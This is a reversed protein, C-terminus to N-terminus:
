RMLNSLGIMAPNDHQILYVPIPKLYEKFRGKQEFRIRFRDTNFTSGLKKVIGGALYVGGLAGVTLALDGSTSALFDTFMDITACAAPDESLAKHAIEESTLASYEFGDVHCVSEYLLPLGIGSVLREASIHGKKERAFGIVAAERDNSAALTVHGGEGPVPVWRDGACVLSAVGLGTGPGIVAKVSTPNPVSGGIKVLDSDCIYPLSLAIAQFDNIVDLRTWGFSQRVETQSFRWHSNTLKVLDGMVPEAVCIAAESVDPQGMEKLYSTIAESLSEFSICKYTTPAVCHGNDSKLVFRANTGGIDALLKM